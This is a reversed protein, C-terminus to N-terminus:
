LYKDILDEYEDQSHAGVLKEVPKGNVFLIVTPISVIGYETALEGEADVNVKGVKAKSSYEDAVASIVPAVMRCPGCWSAWFDVLVPVPSKLVESDFNSKTLTLEM